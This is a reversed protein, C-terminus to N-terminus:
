LRYWENRECQLVYLRETIDRHNWMVCPKAPNAPNATGARLACSTQIRRERTEETPVRVCQAAAFQVKPAEKDCGALLLVSICILTKAPLPANM